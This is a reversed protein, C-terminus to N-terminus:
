FITYPLPEQMINYHIGWMYVMVEAFVGREKNDVLIVSRGLFLVEEKKQDRNNTSNDQSKNNSM